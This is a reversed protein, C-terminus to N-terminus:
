LTFMEFPCLCDLRCRDTEELPLVRLENECIDSEGLDGVEVAVDVM